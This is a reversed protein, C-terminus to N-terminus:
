IEAGEQPVQRCQGAQQAYWEARRWLGMTTRTCTEVMKAAAQHSRLRDLRIRPRTNRPRKTWSRPAGSTQLEGEACGARPAGSAHVSVAVSSPQLKRLFDFVAVLVEGLPDVM